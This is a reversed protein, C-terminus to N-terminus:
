RSKQIKLSVVLTMVGLSLEFHKHIEQHSCLINKKTIYKKKVFYLSVDYAYWIPSFIQWYKVCFVIIKNQLPLSTWPAALELTGLIEKTVEVVEVIEEVMIEEEVMIDEMKEVM